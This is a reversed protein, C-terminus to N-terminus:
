AKQEPEQSAPAVPAAPPNAPQEVSKPAEVVPPNAAKNLERQVDDKAKNFENLAQGLGRALEPLKKGGFLLLIALFLLLGPWGYLGNILGLTYM